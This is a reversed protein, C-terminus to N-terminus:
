VHVENRLIDERTLASKGKKAGVFTNHPEAPEACSKIDKFGFMELWQIVEETRMPVVHYDGPYLQRGYLCKRWFERMGRYNEIFYKACIDFEPYALYLQGDEKLVRHFEIFFKPWHSLEIHELNHICNIQDVSDNEYPLFSKRIDCVLDPKTSEEIDINIFGKLKTEGAGYNLKM